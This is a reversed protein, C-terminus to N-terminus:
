RPYHSMCKRDRRNNQDFKDINGIDMHLIRIVLSFCYLHIKAKYNRISDVSM